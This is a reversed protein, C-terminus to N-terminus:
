PQRSAVEVEVLVVSPVTDEWRGVVVMMGLPEEVEVEKGGRRRVLFRGEGHAGRPGGAVEALELCRGKGAREFWAATGSAVAAKCGSLGLRDGPQSRLASTLVM